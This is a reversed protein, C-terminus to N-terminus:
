IHSDMHAAHAAVIQPLKRTTSRWIMMLGVGALILATCLGCWMGVAGWHLSFCLWLGLPTGVIWYGIGHMMMGAHTNGAGRLAGTATVQLGDFFQFVAAIYLLPVTTALLAPDPSFGHVIVRPVSVFTLSAGLMFGAGLIMGTWGAATAGLVDRRGIAQGVRVGTAASIAFPVMYATAACDLAIQHGALQLPGLTAIVATVLSFIAIELLIQGGAPAGLKVLQLIRQWEITLKTELLRYKERHEAHLVSAAMFLALYLRSYSTSWGSGAVGWGSFYYSGFHHPFILLWDGFLNILNATVLAVAIARVHNFAQLHRRLTFYLLLLPTSWNLAYLLSISAVRVQPDIPMATLALPWLCVLGMLIFSLALSLIIGHWLWRNAESIRGAGYAQSILTDLGLLIGGIGFAMTNYLVQSLASAGISVASAPLHGVMITDVISMAMWGLEALVLPWALHLMPRFEGRIAARLSSPKHVINTM